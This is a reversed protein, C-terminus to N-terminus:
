GELDALLQEFGPQARISDYYPLYPEIFPIVLSPESLASRICEVVAATAGAIGLIRCAHHQMMILDALNSKAARRWRRIRREAEATNGSAAPPLASVLLHGMQPYSGDPSRQEELVAELESLMEALQEDQQLFWHSFIRYVLRDSIDAITTGDARQIPTDPDHILIVAEAFDRNAILADWVDLGGTVNEYEDQLATVRQAWQEFDRQVRLGLIIDFLSIHYNSVEAKEVEQAADEYRHATMLNHVLIATRNPNRPDLERALRAAEIKGQYDGQRRAIWSQLELLRIDSPRLKQAQNILRYARDYDRLIYYTYYTQAIVYETSEPALGQIRELIQEVRHLTEASHESFYDFSLRGALEVWARVFTPDLAVASELKGTYAPDAMNLPSTDRIQMAQHYARYAAMNSTPLVAMRSADEGTLAIPLADAIANSIDTQVEFINEPSLDRDFREAWLHEDSTVDILQANIRIRDGLSQVSGELIADAGLEQGIDRLNRQSGRYEEVSTRSIVRLEPLQALQTLLDDHVGSAFFVSDGRQGIANFPLVAVVPLEPIPAPLAQTHSEAANQPTDTPRTLFLALLIAAIGAVAILVFLSRHRHQNVDAPHDADPSDPFHALYGKRRVTEIYAHIDDPSLTHRLISICRNIADDSVIRQDWVEAILEDRTILDNQHTLFYELLKAVQPELRTITESHAVDGTDADFTWDGFRYLGPNHSEANISKSGM